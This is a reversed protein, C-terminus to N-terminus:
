LRQNVTKTAEMRAHCRMVEMFADFSGQLSLENILQKNSWIQVAPEQMFEIVLDTDVFSMWLTIAGDLSVATARRDRPPASGFVLRLEYAQGRQLSDWAPNAIAIYGKSARRNLGIRFATRDQYVKLAFCSHGMAPDATVSWTGIVSRMTTDQASGPCSFFIVAIASAVVRSLRM